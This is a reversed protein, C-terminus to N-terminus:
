TATSRYLLDTAPDVWLNPKQTTTPLNRLEVASGTQLKGTIRVRESASLEVRDAQLGAEGNRVFAFANGGPGNLQPGSITGSLYGGNEFQVSGGFLTPDITLGGAKIKGGSKVTVDANIEVKGDTGIKFTGFVVSGDPNIVASGSTIKGEKSIKMGAFTASGDPLIEASGATFKGGSAIVLDNLVTMVGYVDVLGSVDLPGSIIVEGEFMVLGSAILRGIIEATGTVRLGGNEITIMGGDYVRLGNAGISANQLPAATELARLRREHDHFDGRSLDDLGAM